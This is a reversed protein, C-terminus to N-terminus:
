RRGTGTAPLKDVLFAHRMESGHQEGQANQMSESLRCLYFSNADKMAFSCICYSEWIKTRNLYSLITTQPLPHVGPPLNVHMLHDSSSILLVGVLGTSRAHSREFVITM